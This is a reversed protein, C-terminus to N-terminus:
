VYCLHATDSFFLFTSSFWFVREVVREIEREGEGTERKGKGGIKNPRENM